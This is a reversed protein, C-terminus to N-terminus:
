SNVMFGNYRVDLELSATTGNIVAIRIAKIGNGVFSQNLPIGVSVERGLAVAQNVGAPDWILKSYVDQNGTDTSALVSSFNTITVTKGAPIVKDKTATSNGNVSMLLFDSFDESTEPAPPNTLYVPIANDTTNNVSVSEDGDESVLAM